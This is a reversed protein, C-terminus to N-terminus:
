KALYDQVRQDKYLEIVAEAICGNLDQELFGSAHNAFASIVTGDGLTAQYQLNSKWSFFVYESLLSNVKLAITKHQTGPTVRGNKKLEDTAQQVMVATIANLNSALRSGHYSYVIVQDTSPQDNIIATDGSVTLQPVLGNGLSYITPTYQMTGCGQLALACVLLCKRILM